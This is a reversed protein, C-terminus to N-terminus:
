REARVVEHLLLSSANQSSLLGSVNSYTSACTYVTAAPVVDM